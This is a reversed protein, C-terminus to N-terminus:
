TAAFSVMFAPRRGFIIAYAPDTLMSRVQRSFPFSTFLCTFILSTLLMAVAKFSPQTMVKGCPVVLGHFGMRRPVAWMMFFFLGITTGMTISPKLLDNSLFPSRILFRPIRCDM